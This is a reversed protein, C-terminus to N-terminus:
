ITYAGNFDSQITITVTATNADTLQPTVQMAEIKGIWFYQSNEVTGMSAAGDTSDSEYGAPEANLLAFRFVYQAGDGVMDGLITGDAWEAAVYNMQIEMSPADAQGQIQQSTKQGYVPVNVVNPPTGMPPFERVDKIRVYTNSDAAGGISPIESAFLDMWEAGTDLAAIAASTIPTSPVSVSLDSFVGAGISSIHSM